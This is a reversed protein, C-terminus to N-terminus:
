DATLGWRTILGKGGLGLQAGVSCISGKDLKTSFFCKIEYIFFVKQFFFDMEPSFLFKKGAINKKSTKNTAKM